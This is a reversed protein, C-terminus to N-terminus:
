NHIITARAGLLEDDHGCLWDEVAQECDPCRVVFFRDNHRVYLLLLGWGTHPNPAPTLCRFCHSLAHGVPNAQSRGLDDSM